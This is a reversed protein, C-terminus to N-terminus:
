EGMDGRFEEEFDEGVEVDGVEEGDRAFRRAMRRVDPRQPPLPTSLHHLPLNTSTITALDM